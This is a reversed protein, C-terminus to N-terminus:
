LGHRVGLRVLARRSRRYADMIRPVQGVDVGMPGAFGVRDLAEFVGDWDIAGDGIARHANTLGDNDSAHVYKIARGLKMISLPLLEKQGHQHGTDFVVGFGKRGVADLLRLMAETNSVMEGVRPEVLLTLGGRNAIRKCRGIGDVLAAWQRDWSFGKPIRVEYRENFRVAKKYPAVGRFHLPPTFSDVQVLRSGFFDALEAGMGFLDVARRRRRADMSVLDPLVPCFNIIALGLGACLDKLEHRAGYVEKLNPERVGELEIATFGMAAMERIARRTLALSPPYGYRSITYLWCCNVTM